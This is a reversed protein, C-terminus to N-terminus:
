RLPLPLSFYFPAVSAGALGGPCTSEFSHLGYAFRVTFAVVFRGAPYHLHSVLTAIFSQKLDLKKEPLKKGKEKKM